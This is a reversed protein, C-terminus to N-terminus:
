EVIRVALPEGRASYLLEARVPQDAREPAVPLGWTALLARPFETEVVRTGSELAIRDLPKLALFPAAEGPADPLPHAARVMWAVIAVMAALALPPMWWMAPRKPTAARPLARFRELLAAELAEPPAQTGLAGRLRGLAADLRAGAAPELSTTESNM